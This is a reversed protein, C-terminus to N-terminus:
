SFVHPVCTRGKLHIIMEGGVVVEYMCFLIFLLFYM